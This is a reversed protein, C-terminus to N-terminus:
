WTRATNPKGMPAAALALYLDKSTLALKPGANSEALAVGDLGIPVEIIEGVKNARCKDYESKHMRRSADAIDPFKSGAGECFRQIGPGTGVSKITPAKRGSKAAVFADAVASTFPYVTSSGMARITRSNGNCASLALIAFAGLALRGTM